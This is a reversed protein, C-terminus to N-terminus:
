RSLTILSVCELCSWSICAPFLLAVPHFALLVSAATKSNNMKDFPFIIGLSQLVYIKLVWTTLLYTLLFTIPFYKSVPHEVASLDQSWKLHSKSLINYSSLSTIQIEFLNFVTTNQFSVLFANSM